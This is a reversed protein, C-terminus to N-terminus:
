SLRLATWFVITAPDNFIVNKICYRIDYNMRSRREVVERSLERANAIEKDLVYGMEDWARKGYLLNLLEKYNNTAM